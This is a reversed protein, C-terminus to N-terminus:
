SVKYKQKLKKIEGKKVHSVEEKKDLKCELNGAGCGAYKARSIGHTFGQKKDIFSVLKEFAVQCIREGPYLRIVQNQTNNVIPIMLNGSYWVDIIGTLDVALGRRNISSRPYLIGMIDGTNITISELTSTIIYEKPLIEFYHGSKLVIKEFNDGNRIPSLPDVDIAERGKETIKWTRPLYFTNGLRLDIAHPQVQFADLSPEIVLEKRNLLAVIEKKTLVAM